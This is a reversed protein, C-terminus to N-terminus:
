VNKDEEKRPQRKALYTRPRPVFGDPGWSKPVYGARGGGRPEYFRRRLETVDEETVKELETIFSM